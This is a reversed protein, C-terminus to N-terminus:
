FKKDARRMFYWSEIFPLVDRGFSFKHNSTLYLCDGEHLVPNQSVDGKKLYANFNLFQINNKDGNRILYVKKKAARGTFGNAAGIADLARHSKTLEHLGADRVEGLVFVRTGGMKTVNITLLPNVIYEALREKLEGTLEGVTKGEIEVTGILPYEIKGDTRVIYTSSLDDHGMVRISVHDGANMCYEEAMCPLSLWLCAVMVLVMVLFSIIKKRM